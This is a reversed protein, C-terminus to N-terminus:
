QCRHVSQEAASAFAASNCFCAPVSADACSSSASRVLPSSASCCSHLAAFVRESSARAFTACSSDSFVTIATLDRDIRARPQRLGCRTGTCHRDLPQVTGTSHSDLARMSHRNKALLAGPTHLCIEPRGGVVPLCEFVRLSLSCARV